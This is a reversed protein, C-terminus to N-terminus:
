LNIKKHIVLFLCWINLRLMKMSDWPNEWSERSYTNSSSCYQSNLNIKSIFLSSTQTGSQKVWVYECFDFIRWIFFFDAPIVLFTSQNVVKQCPDVTLFTSQPESTAFRNWREKTRELWEQVTNNPRCLPLQLHLFEIKL